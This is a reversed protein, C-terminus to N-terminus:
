WSPTGGRACIIADIAPDEFMAMIDAAREAPSGAYIDQRLQTSKGRVVRFGQDEFVGVARELREEDLWYAPNVIGITAGDRLRPPRLQRKM